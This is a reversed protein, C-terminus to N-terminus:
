RSNFHDILSAPLRRARYVARSGVGNPLARCPSFTHQFEANEVMEVAVSRREAREHLAPEPQDFQDLRLAKGAIMQGLVM